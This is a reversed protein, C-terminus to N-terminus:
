EYTPITDNTYIPGYFMEYEDFGEELEVENINHYQQADAQTNRDENFTMPHDECRLDTTPQEEERHYFATYFATDVGEANPSTENLCGDLVMGEDEGPQANDTQTEEDSPYPELYSEWEETTRPMPFIQECAAELASAVDGAVRDRRLSSKWETANMLTIEGSRISALRRQFWEECAPSWYRVNLGCTEWTSAKPWWSLDKTQYFLDDSPATLQQVHVHSQLPGM